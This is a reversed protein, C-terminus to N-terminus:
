RFRFLSKLNKAPSKKIYQCSARLYPAKSLKRFFEVYEDGLMERMRSLFAQPLIEIRSLDGM